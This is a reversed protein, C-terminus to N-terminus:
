QSATQKDKDVLKQWGTMFEDLFKGMSKVDKKTDMEFLFSDLQKIKLAHKAVSQSTSKSFGVDVMKSFLWDYANNLHDEQEDDKASLNNSKSALHTKRNQSLNDVQAAWTPVLPILCSFFEDKSTSNLVSSALVDYFKSSQIMEVFDSVVDRRIGLRVLNRDLEGVGIQSIELEDTKSPGRRGKENNEWVPPDIKQDTNGIVRLTHDMTEKMKKIESVEKALHNASKILSQSSSKTDEKMGILERATNQSLTVVSLLDEKLNKWLHINLISDAMSIGNVLGGWYNLDYMPSQIVLQEVSKRYTSSDSVTTELYNMVERIMAPPALRVRIMEKKIEMLQDYEQKEIEIFGERLPRAERNWGSDEKLSQIRSRDALAKSATPLPLPIRIKRPLIPASIDNSDAWHDNHDYEEKRESPVDVSPPDAPRRKMLPEPDDEEEIERFPRRSSEEDEIDVAQSNSVGRVKSMDMKFSLENRIFEAGETNQFKIMDKYEQEPTLVEDSSSSKSTSM